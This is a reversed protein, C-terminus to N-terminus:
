SLATEFVVNNITINNIKPGIVEAKYNNINVIFKFIVVVVKYKIFYTYKAGKMAILKNFFIIVVTDM